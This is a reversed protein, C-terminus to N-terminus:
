DALIDAKPIILQTGSALRKKRGLRNIEAIKNATMGYRRAVGALTQGRGVVHVRFAQREAPTLAALCSTIAEEEALGAPVNVEFGGGQPPTAAYRLQPNLQQVAELDAGACKAVARLDVGQGVEVRETLQPAEPEVSLGYKSPDKAVLIAAHIKPVYERTERALAPTRALQWFDDTGYRDIARSITGEGANYAALALNWDHFRSHLFRLYQAAARTAKEPDSREDMWWNFDLGFRKGSAPMFQWMGTAKAPSVARTKFESEVLAVYALDPPVGESEFIERIRPIYRGGRELADSFGEKQRGQYLTVFREVAGNLYIGLGDGTSATSDDSEVEPDQAELAAASIGQPRTELRHLTRTVGWSFTFSALVVGAAHAALRRDRRRREPRTAGVVVRGRRDHRRREAAAGSADRTAEAM